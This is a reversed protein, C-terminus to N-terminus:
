VSDDEKLGIAKPLYDINEKLRKKLWFHILIFEKVKKKHTKLVNYTLMWFSKKNWFKDSFLYEHLIAIFNRICTLHM